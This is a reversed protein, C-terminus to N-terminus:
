LLPGLTALANNWLRRRWSWADVEAATVRRACALYARQRRQVAATTARDWLLLNNEYNLEFSRRDMNASGILTVEGDVTLTKAHLLGAQYEYVAVGAALLDGYHSRSAAAVAFDDNRAPLVLTTEVGRQAAACLAAQVSQLPVYYPTTVFLGTRAAYMLSAFMEPAANARETPGSVIVQAAFGAEPPLAPESLVADLSEGTALAWDVAFVRQNQRAVPGTVRLMIDVWPAYKAKILFQADACNQSGCYTIANDIVVIKRHNRLDIRGDLIRRVPNGVPLARALRVGAREMDQWLSSSLLRRSGLDDVMARCAVGRAAARMLAEAVRRGNRDALWIYFLLHVHRRAGDIDRVLVDIVSDTDAPLEARNGGIPPFGSIAQGMLRLPEYENAITPGSPPGGSAPAPPDGPPPLAAHVSRLRRARERGISTEGVLLYAVAGAVPVALIVVMWALRSAPERGERLLVRVILVAQVLVHVVILVGAGGHATAPPM